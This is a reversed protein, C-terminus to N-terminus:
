VITQTQDFYTDIRVNSSFLQTNSIVINFNHEYTNQNQFNSIRFLFWFPKRRLNEEKFANLIYIQM